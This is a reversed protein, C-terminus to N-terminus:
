IGGLVIELQRVFANRFNQPLPFATALRASLDGTASTNSIALYYRAYGDALEPAIKQLLLHGGVVLGHAAYQDYIGTRKEAPTTNDSIVTNMLNGVVEHAFVYIAEIAQDQRVPYTVVVTAGTGVSTPGASMTRGEGGIPMSLIMEGNSQQSGRLFRAFKPYYTQRWLTDLTQVVAARNRNEANYYNEYFKTKEDDLAVMFMRLWERDAAQPFRLAFFEIIGQFQENTARRPDGGATLFAQAATRLDDWTGFSLPLFQGNQALRTNERLRLALRDRNADLSTVVNLQNKLLQMDNRYNRRFYPIRATDESIMAFGHFWLDIHPRTKIAWPGTSAPPSGTSGSPPPTGEAGGGGSACASLTAALALVFGARTARLPSVGRALSSAFQRM